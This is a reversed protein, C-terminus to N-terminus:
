VNRPPFWCVGDVKTKRQIKVEFYSQGKEWLGENKEEVIALLMSRGMPTMTDSAFKSGLM